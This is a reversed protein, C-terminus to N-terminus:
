DNLAGHGWHPERNPKYAANPGGPFTQPTQICNFSGPPSFSGAASCIFYVNISATRKALPVEGAHGACNKSTNPGAFATGYVHFGYVGPHTPRFHTNFTGPTNFKPALPSEETLVLRKLIGAPPISGNPGTPPLAEKLYLAEVKLDVKDPEPKTATGSPDIPAGFYGRPTETCAADYTNLIVDVGNYSDEWAPEGAFGVTLRIFGSGSTAPILRSEHAFAPAVAASALATALVFGLNKDIKM